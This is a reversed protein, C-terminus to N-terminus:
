ALERLIAYGIAVFILTAVGWRVGLTLFAMAHDPAGSRPSHDTRCDLCRVTGLLRTGVVGGWATWGSPVSRQSGCEACPKAAPDDPAGMALARGERALSRHSAGATFLLVGIWPLHWFWFGKRLLLPFNPERRLGNADLLHNPIGDVEVLIQIAPSLEAVFLLPPVLRGLFPNAAYSLAEALGMAVLPVALVAIVYVVGTLVVAGRGLVRTGTQKIVLFTSTALAFLVALSSSANFFVDQPTMRSWWSTRGTVIDQWGVTFGVVHLLILTALFCVFVAADFAVQPIRWRGLEFQQLGDIRGSSLAVLAVILAVSVAVGHVAVIGQRFLQNLVTPDFVTAMLMVAVLSLLTYQQLARLPLTWRVMRPGRNEFLFSLEVRRTLFPRLRRFFARKRDGPLVLAGFNNLGPASTHLPGVACTLIAVLAICGWLFAAWVPWPLDLGFPRARAMMPYVIDAEAGALAEVFPLSIYRIPTVSLTSPVPCLDLVILGIFTFITVLLAIVEHLIAGLGFAVLLLLNCYGYIVAYTIATRWWFIEGLLGFLVVFPVSAGLLAFFFPQSTAWKGAYYRLPSMGTTVLQDMYGRWRPGEMLGSARLPVIVTVFGTLMIMVSAVLYPAAGVSVALQRFDREMQPLVLSTGLCALILLLIEIGLWLGVKPSSLITRADHEASPNDWVFDLFARPLRRM